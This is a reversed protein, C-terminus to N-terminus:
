QTTRYDVGELKLVMQLATSAEAADEPGQAARRLM